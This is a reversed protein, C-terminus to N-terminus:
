ILRANPAVAGARMLTCSGNPGCKYHVDSRYEEWSTAGSMSVTTGVAFTRGDSTELTGAKADFDSVTLDGESSFGVTKVDGVLSLQEDLPVPTVEPASALAIRAPRVFPHAV